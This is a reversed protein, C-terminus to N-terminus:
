RKLATEFPMHLDVAFAYMM